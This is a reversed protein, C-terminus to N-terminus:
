PIYLDICLIQSIKALVGGYNQLVNSISALKDSKSSLTEYGSEEKKKNEPALLCNYLLSLCIKGHRIM